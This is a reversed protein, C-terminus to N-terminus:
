ATDFETQYMLVGFDGSGLGTTYAAVGTTTSISNLATITGNDTFWNPSAGSTVVSSVPLYTTTISTIPTGHGKTTVIHVPYDSIIEYHDTRNEELSMNWDSLPTGMHSYNTFTPTIVLTVNAGQRYNMAPTQLRVQCKPLVLLRYKDNGTSGTSKPQFRQMLIMGMLVPAARYPNTSFMEFSTNTTADVASGSVLAYFDPDMLSMTLNFQNLSPSGFLFKTVERDGGQIPVSQSQAVALGAQIVDSAKYAPTTAGAALSSGATGAPYNGSLTYFIAHEFGAAYGQTAM